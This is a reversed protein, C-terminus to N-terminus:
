RPVLSRRARVLGISGALAGMAVLVALSPLIDGVTPSPGSLTDIARLFWAHPTIQSLSVMAEPAQSLPVFVGGVAALSLSVIANLSSAQQPTRALSSVAMSIGMAAFVTALVLLAVLTAPGWNAGRLLTTAIALVTMSILGLAFGALSAGFVISGPAIPAALLRAMTGGQRDALLALAGYQTAFFVFMVAMAASYFTALGAQLRDTVPTAVSIPGPGTAVAQAGTVVDPTVAGGTAAFTAVILQTAGINEAFRAVVSRAVEVSIAYEGGLIRLETPAGAQIAASFGAPIVIAAGVTGAQVESRAAAEDSVPVIDAVGADRVGGLVQDVLVNAMSGGDGDVVAFRTHFSSFDNPILVSFALALGLPTLVSFVIATRDRIRQRLIRGAILIAVRVSNV